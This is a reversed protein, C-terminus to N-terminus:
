ISPLHSIRLEHRLSRYAGGIQKKMVWFYLDMSCLGYLVIVCNLKLNKKYFVCNRVVQLILECNIIM